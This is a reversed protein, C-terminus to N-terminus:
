IRWVPGKFLNDLCFFGVDKQIQASYSAGPSALDSWSQLAQRLLKQRLTLKDTIGTARHLRCLETHAQSLSHYVASALCLSPHVELLFVNMLAPSCVRCLFTFMSSCSVSDLTTLSRYKSAQQRWTLGSPQSRLKTSPWLWLCLRQPRRELHTPPVAATKWDSSVFLM